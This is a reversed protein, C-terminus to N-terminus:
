PGFSLASAPVSRRFSVTGTREVSRLQHLGLRIALLCVPQRRPRSPPLRSAARATTSSSRHAGFPGLATGRVVEITVTAALPYASMVDGNAPNSACTRSTSRARRAARPSSPHAWRVLLRQVYRPVRGRGSHRRRLHRGHLLQRQRGRRAYLGRLEPAAAILARQAMPGLRAATAPTGYSTVTTPSGLRLGQLRELRLHRHERLRGARARVAHRRSPAQDGTPDNARAQPPTGAALLHNDYRAKASLPAQLSAASADEIDALTPELHWPSSKPLAMAAQRGAESLLNPWAPAQNVPTEAATAFGAACLLATALVGAAARRPIKGRKRSTM